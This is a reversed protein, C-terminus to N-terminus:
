RVCRVMFDSGKYADVGIYCIKMNVYYGADEWRTGKLAGNTNSTWYVLPQLNYKRRIQECIKENEEGYHNGGAISLYKYLPRVVESWEQETPVRWPKEGEKLTKNLEDVKERAGDFTAVGLEPGFEFSLKRDELDKAAEAKAKEIMSIKEQHKRENIAEWYGLTKPKEFEPGEPQQHKDKSETYEETERKADLYGQAKAKAIEPNEPDSNRIDKLKNALEDRYEQHPQKEM